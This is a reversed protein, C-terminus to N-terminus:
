LLDGGIKFLTTCYEVMNRGAIKEIQKQNVLYAGVYSHIIMNAFATYLETGFQSGSGYLFIWKDIFNELKLNPERLVKAMAEVFTKINEFSAEPVQVRILDAERQSLGSIKMARQSTATDDEKLLIGVQYYMACLFMMKARINDVGGIRMYDIINAGLKAFCETSSSVMTTNNLITTPDVHYILTNLACALYSILKEVDANKITYEDNELKIIDSVDIFVKTDKNTMRVDKAALVKFARSVPKNPIMFVISDRDVLSSLCSSTQNRKVLYRINDFGPQTKDVRKAGVIYQYLDQGYNAMSYLYSSDYNKIKGIM